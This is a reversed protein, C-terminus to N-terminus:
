SNTPFHPTSELRINFWGSGKSGVEASKTDRFTVSIEVKSGVFLLRLEELWQVAKSQLTFLQEQAAMKHNSCAVHLLNQVKHGMTILAAVKEEM